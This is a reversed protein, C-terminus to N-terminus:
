EPKIGAAEAIKRYKQIESRQFTGLNAASGGVAETGSELMRQKYDPSQIIRVMELNLNEVIDKPTQSPVWAAFWQVIYFGPLGSEAVTPVDPLSTSRQASTVGLARLKGSKVHPTAALLTVLGVPVHGGLLDVLAPAAGKYPVHVMKIKVMSNILEGAFHMPSGIGVSAYSVVSPKARALAILDKISKVPLSPHALLIAPTTTALTVPQFDKVPDYPMKSYLMLNMSMESGASILITYGDPASKAVIEAGIMGGGGPRNDLFVSKGWRETLKVAIPRATLDTGGGPAYPIVFRIPKVPYPQAVTAGAAALGCFLCCWPAARRIKM